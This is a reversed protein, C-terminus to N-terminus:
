LGDFEALLCELLAWIIVHKEQGARHGARIILRMQSM